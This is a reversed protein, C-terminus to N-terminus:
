SCSGASGPAKRNLKWWALGVRAEAAGDDADVAREVLREGPQASGPQFERGSGPWGSAPSRAGCGRGRRFPAPFDPSWPRAAPLLLQRASARLCRPTTAKADGLVRRRDQAPARAPRQDFAAVARREGLVMLEHPGDFSSRFFDGFGRRRSSASSRVTPSGPSRRSVLLRIRNNPMLEIFLRDLRALLRTCEAADLDFLGLMEDFSYHNLSLLAALMVEPQRRVGEGARLFAASDGRRARGALARPRFVRGAGGSRLDRGPSVPHVGEALVHAQREVARPGSCPPRAHHHQAAQLERKLNDVLPAGTHWAFGKPRM